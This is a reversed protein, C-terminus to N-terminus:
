KYLGPILLWPEHTAIVKSLLPRIIAASWYPLKYRSVMGATPGIRVLLLYFYVRYHELKRPIRRLEVSSYTIGMPQQIREVAKVHHDIVFSVVGSLGTVASQIAKLIHITVVLVVLDRQDLPQLAIAFM